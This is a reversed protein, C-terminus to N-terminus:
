ETDEHGLHAHLVQVGRPVGRVDRGAGVQYVGGAIALHQPAAEKGTGGTPQGHLHRKEPKFGIFLQLRTKLWHVPCGQVSLYGGGRHRKGVLGEIPFDKAFVTLGGARGLKM